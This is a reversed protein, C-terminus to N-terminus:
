FGSKKWDVRDRPEQLVTRAPPRYTFTVDMHPLESFSNETAEMLHAFHFVFVRNDQTFLEINYTSQRVFCIERLAFIEEPRTLTIHLQGYAIGEERYDPLDISIERSTLRLVLTNDQDLIIIRYM